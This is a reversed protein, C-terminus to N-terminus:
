GRQGRRAIIGAAAMGTSAVLGSWWLGVRVSRAVAPRMVADLVPAATGAATAARQTRVYQDTGEATIRDQIM